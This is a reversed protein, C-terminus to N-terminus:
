PYFFHTIFERVGERYKDGSLLFGDNHSGRIQLFTKPQRAADFLQSGFEFPIIEDEPSHIVLVPCNIKQIYEISPYRTRTLWKVPLYPYYKRAMEVISTFASEIILLSPSKEHALWTAVASGLSRGFLIIRGADAKKVTILYDWAARADAYTGQESPSGESRGFGRYDFILVSLGLQHFINISDLRHSINGANGHMFLLTGLPEEHAIYWGHLRTGDSALIEVDEYAMGMDAPNASLEKQPYYIFRDQFIYLLCSLILWSALFIFLLSTLM